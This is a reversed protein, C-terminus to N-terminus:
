AEEILKYIAISEFELTGLTNAVKLVANVKSYGELWYSFYMSEDNDGLYRGEIIYKEDLPHILNILKNM